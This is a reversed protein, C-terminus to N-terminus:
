DSCKKDEDEPDSKATTQQPTEKSELKEKSEM